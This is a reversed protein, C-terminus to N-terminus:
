LEALYMYTQLYALLAPCPLASNGLDSLSQSRRRLICAPSLPYEFFVVEGALEATDTTAAQYSIM